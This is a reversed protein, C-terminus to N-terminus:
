LAEKIGKTNNEVNFFEGIPRVFIDLQTKSTDTGVNIEEVTKM